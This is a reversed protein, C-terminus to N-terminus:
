RIIAETSLENMSVRGGPLYYYPSHEDKMIILKQAHILLGAVRYNFRGVGTRFTIDM